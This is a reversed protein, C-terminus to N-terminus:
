DGDRVCFLAPCSSVCVNDCNRLLGRWVGGGLTGSQAVSWDCLWHLVLMVWQVWLWLGAPHCRGGGSGRGGGGAHEQIV